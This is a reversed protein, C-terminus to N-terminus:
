PVHQLSVDVLQPAPVRQRYVMNFAQNNYMPQPYLQQRIHNYHPPSPMCNNSYAYQERPQHHYGNQYPADSSQWQHMTISSVPPLRGMSHSTELLTSSPPLPMRSMSVAPHPPMGYGGPSRMMMHSADNPSLKQRLHPHHSYVQEPQPMCANGHHAQGSMIKTAGPYEPPPGQNYEQQQLAHFDTENFSSEISSLEYNGLMHPASHMRHSNLQLAKSRQESEVHLITDTIHDPLESELLDDDTVADMILSADGDM